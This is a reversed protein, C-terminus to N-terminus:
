LGNQMREIQMLMVEDRLLLDRQEQTMLPSRRDISEVPPTPTTASASQETDPSQEQVDATATSSVGSQARLRAIAAATVSSIQDGGSGSSTEPNRQLFSQRAINRDPPGAPNSRRPMGLDDEVLGLATRVERLGRRANELDIVQQPIHDTM